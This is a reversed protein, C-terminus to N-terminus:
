KMLTVSQLIEHESISAKLLYTGASLQSANLNLNQSGRSMYQSKQVQQVVRGRVDFLTLSVKGGQTLYFSITSYPNFPNPYVQLLAISHPSYMSSIALSKPLLGEITNKIKEEDWNKINMSDALFGKDNLFFLDWQNAGWSNWLPHGPSTDLVIPLSIDTLWNENDASFEEKGVAIIIL